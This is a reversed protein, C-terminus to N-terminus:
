RKANNDGKEAEVVKFDANIIKKDENDQQIQKRNKFRSILGRVTQQTIGDPKRADNIIFGVAPLILSRWISIHGKKNYLTGFCPGRRRGTGPGLGEPGAGDRRPM